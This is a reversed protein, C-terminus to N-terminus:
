AHAIPLHPPPTSFDLVKACVNYLLEEERSDACDEAELEEEDYDDVYTKREMARVTRRQL